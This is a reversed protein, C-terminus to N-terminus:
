DRAVAPLTQRAADAGQFFYQLIESVVPVAVASGEGGNYILPLSRLKRTISPAFALVLRVDAPFGEADYGIEPDCFEATGTKGLWQLRLAM